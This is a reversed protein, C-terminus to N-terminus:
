FYYNDKLFDHIEIDNFEINPFQRRIKNIAVDLDTPLEKDLFEIIEKKYSNLTSIRKKNETDKIIKNIDKSSYYGKKNKYFGYKNLFVRIQVVSRELKTIKKIIKKAEELTKVKNNIHKFIEIKYSDLESKYLRNNLRDIMFNKNKKYEKIYNFITKRCCGIYEMLEEINLFKDYNLIVECPIFIEPYEDYKDMINNLRRIEKKDLNLPKLYRM